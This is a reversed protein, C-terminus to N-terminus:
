VKIQSNRNEIHVLIADTYFTETILNTCFLKNHLINSFQNIFLKLSHKIFIHMKGHLQTSQIFNNSM